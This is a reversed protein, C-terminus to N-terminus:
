LNRRFFSNELETCLPGTVFCNNILSDEKVHTYPMLFEFFEM